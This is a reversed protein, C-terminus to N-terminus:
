LKGVVSVRTARSVKWPPAPSAPNRMAIRPTPVTIPASTAADRDWGVERVTTIAAANSPMASSTAADNGVCAANSIASTGTPAVATNKPEVALACM